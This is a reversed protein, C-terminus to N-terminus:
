GPGVNSAPLVDIIEGRRALAFALGCNAALQQDSPSDGILLSASLDINWRKEAELVMGPRPKRCECEGEEPPCYLIDDVRAGARGLEELMNRHILELDSESMLQRAIGRQNTMIIVLLGLGNFLRILGAIGPLFQFDSWRRIYDDSPAKVNIVGDRDLFLCRRKVM